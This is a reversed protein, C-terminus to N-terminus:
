RVMANLQGEESCVDCVPTPEELKKNAIPLTKEAVFAPPPPPPPPPPENNGNPVYFCQPNTTSAVEGAPM